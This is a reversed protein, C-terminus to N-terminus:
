LEIGILDTWRFVAKAFLGRNSFLDRSFALMMEAGEATPFKLVTLVAM